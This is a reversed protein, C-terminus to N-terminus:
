GKYYALKDGLAFQLENLRASAAEHAASAYSNKRIDLNMVITLCPDSATASHGYTHEAYLLLNNECKRILDANHLQAKEDLVDCINRIRQAERYHKAYYPASGIGNAWWDTLDGRYAPIDTLKPKIRRYLEDLTCMILKPMDAARTSNYAEITEIVQVNPPANDSFEGSVSVPLFDYPYGSDELEKTYRRINDRLLEGRDDTNQGTGFYSYMFGDSSARPLIGMANGINYHEGNWVLLHRGDECEWFYATQNQRLPYMGHHCHINTYFFDVGYDILADRYGMSVGNIDAIMASKCSIGKDDLLSRMDSLRARLAKIDCLDNFNLYNASIGIKGEAALAFFANKEAESAQKLFETVCFWTECNWRFDPNEKATIEVARRIHNVQTFLIREQLDTYGIDTHSHHIVYIERISM